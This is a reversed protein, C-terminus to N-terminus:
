PGTTRPSFSKLAALEVFYDHMLAGMAKTAEIRRIKPEARDSM